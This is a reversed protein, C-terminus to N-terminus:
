GGGVVRTASAKWAAVVRSGPALGLRAASDATIEAALPQPLALGVRTRNGVTTLSTVEGAIRNLMSDAHPAGPPELSVEWPFVSVAVPGRAPDVSRLEGGGRLRVLTLGGPEESAEGRLVAAGAFDAVFPSAPRASITAADGRQVVAGRDLIAITSALLAAEDFSHTVLVTPAELEALVGRLQEIAGRRTAADLASLPEDLLLAGPRAALARALAVRQREGGSLSGPRAAGLHAVGFRDLMAAAAARRGRRRGAVGYAVNALATMRPFLAYDQFVLGCRRREPPLDVGREADFWVEEGLAVRGARPALLGALARLLSSKGAGSPGCLALTRAPAAALEVDLEFGRLPAAVRASLEAAAPATVAAASV